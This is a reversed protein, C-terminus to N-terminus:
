AARRHSAARENMWEIIEHEFWVSTRSTLKIPAPFEGAAMYRKITRVSISTMEAADAIRVWCPRSTDTM